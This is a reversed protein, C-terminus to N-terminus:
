FQRHERRVSQNSSLPTSAARHYSCALELSNAARQDIPTSSCRGERDLVM